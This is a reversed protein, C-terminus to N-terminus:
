INVATFSTIGPQTNFTWMDSAKNSGHKNEAFIMIDYMTDPKLGKLEYVENHMKGKNSLAPAREEM